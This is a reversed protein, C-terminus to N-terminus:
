VRYSRFHQSSRNFGGMAFALTFAVGIDSGDPRRGKREFFFPISGASARQRSRLPTPRPTRAISCSCPAVKGSTSITGFSPASVSISWATRPIADPDDGVTILELFSMEFQILLNETGWPHRNRQGVQFGLRRYFDAAADLDRVALVLHDIRHNSVPM